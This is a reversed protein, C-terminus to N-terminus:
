QKQSAPTTGEKDIIYVQRSTQILLIPPLVWVTGGRRPNFQGGGGLEYISTRVETDGLTVM